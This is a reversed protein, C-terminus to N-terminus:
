ACKLSNTFLLDIRRNWGAQNAASDPIDKVFEKRYKNLATLLPVASVMNINTVLSKTIPRLNPLAGPHQLEALALRMSKGPYAPGSAWCYDALYDAIGQSNILDGYISDWFGGKWIKVWLDDPMAYFNKPTAEYGLRYALDEFTEWTIGKNTHYGSGDPVPHKHANDTLAKSLGGEMERVFPIIHKYDAM